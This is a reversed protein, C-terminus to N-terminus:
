NLLAESSGIAPRPWGRFHPGALADLAADDLDDQEYLDRLARRVLDAVYPAIRRQAGDAQEASLRRHKALFCYFAYLDYLVHAIEEEGFGLELLYRRVAVPDLDGWDPRPEGTRWLTVAAVRVAFMVKFHSQADEGHIEKGCALAITAQRNLWEQAASDQPEGHVYCIPDM